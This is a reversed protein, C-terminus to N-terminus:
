VSWESMFHRWITKLLQYFSVRLKASFLCPLFYLFYFSHCRMIFSHEFWSILVISSQKYFKFKCNLFFNYKHQVQHFICSQLHWHDVFTSPYFLNLWRCRWSSFHRRLHPPSGWCCFLHLWNVYVLLFTCSTSMSWFFVAATCCRGTSFHLKRKQHGAPSKMM